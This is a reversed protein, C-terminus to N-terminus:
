GKEEKPSKIGITKGDSYSKKWKSYDNLVSKFDSRVFTDLFKCVLAISDRYGDFESSEFEDLVYKEAPMDPHRGIGIRIRKLDAPPMVTFLSKLGNHGGDGGGSRVRLQTPPLEIDDHIILIEDIKWKLLAAKLADGSLNMYTRPKLAVAQRYILYDYLAARSFKLKHKEAWADLAIFGINHRTNQYQEPHNGLALILKM